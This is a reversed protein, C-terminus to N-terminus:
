FLFFFCFYVLIVIVFIYVLIYKLTYKLLLFKSSFEIQHFVLDLGLNRFLFEILNYNDDDKVFVVNVTRYTYDTLYNIPYHYENEDYVNVVNFSPKFTFYYGYEPKYLEKRSSPKIEESAKKGLIYCKTNKISWCGKSIIPM